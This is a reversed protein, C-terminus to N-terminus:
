FRDVGRDPELDILARRLLRGISKEGGILQDPDTSQSAMLSDGHGLKTKVGLRVPEIALAGEGQALSRGSNPMRNRSPPRDELHGLRLDDTEDVFPSPVPPDLVGGSGDSTFQSMSEALSLDVGTGREWVAARGRAVRNRWAIEELRELLDPQVYWRGDADGHALGMTQLVRLRGARSAQEWRDTHDLLISGQADRAAVLDHDIATVREAMIDMRRAQSPSIDLDTVPGLDLAVLEGARARFGHYIYERAIILDNGRDDVGRIVIHSHPNATDYHDAAVWDLNTRLDRSVQQMLRRVLPRLDEYECADVAGVITRFQHRDNQCARAFAVSDPAQADPGYLAPRLEEGPRARTLYHLHHQVARSSRELRVVNTRALVPRIRLDRKRLCTALIRGVGSGRGIHAGSFRRGTGRKNWFGARQLGPVLRWRIPRDRAAMSLWVSFGDESM